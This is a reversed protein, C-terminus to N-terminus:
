RLLASAARGHMCAPLMLSPSPCLATLRSPMPAPSIVSFSRFPQQSLPCVPLWARCLGALLRPGAGCAAAQFRLGQNRGQPQSLIAAATARRRLAQPRGSGEHTGGSDANADACSFFVPTLSQVAWRTAGRCCICPPQVAFSPQVLVVVSRRARLQKLADLAGGVLLLLWGHGMCFSSSGQAFFRLAAPRAPEYLFMAAFTGPRTAEAIGDFVNISMLRRVRRAFFVVHSRRVQWSLM